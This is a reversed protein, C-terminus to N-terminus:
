RCLLNRLLVTRSCLAEVLDNLNPVDPPPATLGSPGRDGRPGQPGQPGPAGRGGQAGQPGAPGPQGRKGPQGRPGRRVVVTRREVRTITRAERRIVPAVINRLDEARLSGAIKLACQRTSLQRCPSQSQIVIRDGQQTIERRFSAQQAGDLYLWVPIFIAAALIVGMGLLSARWRRETRTLFGIM